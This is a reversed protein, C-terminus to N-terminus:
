RLLLRLAVGLAIWIAGSVILVFSLTKRIVWRTPADVPPIGISLPTPTDRNLNAPVSM